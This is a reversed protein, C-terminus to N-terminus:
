IRKSIYWCVIRSTLVYPRPSFTFEHRALACYPKAHAGPDIRVRNSGAHGCVVVLTIGSVYGAKVRGCALWAACNREAPLLSVFRWRSHHSSVSFCKPMAPSIVVCKDQTPLLAFHSILPSLHSTLHLLHPTLSLHSTLLSFHSTLLLYYTTLIYHTRLETRLVRFPARPLLSRCRWSPRTFGSDLLNRVM